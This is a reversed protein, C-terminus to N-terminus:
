SHREARAVAARVQIMADQVADKECRRLSTIVEPYLESLRSCVATANAAVRQQLAAAGAPTSLDLDRLSIHRALAHYEVHSNAVLKYTTPSDDRVAAAAADNATNKATAQGAGLALCGVILAASLFRSVEYRNM